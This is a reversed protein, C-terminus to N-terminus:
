RRLQSRPPRPLTPSHGSLSGGAARGDDDSVGQDVLDPILGADALEDASGGQVDRHPQAPESDGRREDRHHPLIDGARVDALIQGIVAHPQDRARCRVPRRPGDDRPGRVALRAIDEVARGLLARDPVGVLRPRGDGLRVDDGHAAEGEIDRGLDVGEGGRHLTRPQRDVRVRAGAHQGVALLEDAAELPQRRPRVQHLDAGVVGGHEIVAVEVGQARPEPVESDGRHERRGPRLARHELRVGPRDRRGDRRQRTAHDVGHSRPVRCEGSDGGPQHFAGRLRGLAPGGQELARHIHGGCGAAGLAPQQACRLREGGGVAAHVSASAEIERARMRCTHNNKTGGTPQELRVPASQRTVWTALPIRWWPLGRERPSRGNGAEGGRRTGLSSRHSREGFGVDPGREHVRVGVLQADHLHRVVEEEHVPVVEVEEGPAVRTGALAAVDEDRVLPTHDAHHQPRRFWPAPARAHAVDAVRHLRAVLHRQKRRSARSLRPLAAVRDAGVDAGIQGAVLVYAERM